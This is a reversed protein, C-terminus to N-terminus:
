LNEKIKLSEFDPNYYQRVPKKIFTSVHLALLRGDERSERNRIEDKDLQWVEAIEFEKDLLVLIGIEFEYKNKRGFKGIRGSKFNPSSWVKRTKIQIRNCDEDTADYGDSPTWRYGFRQCAALEGIIGTFETFEEGAKVRQKATKRLIDLLSEEDNTLTM